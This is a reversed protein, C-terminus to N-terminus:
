LVGLQQLVLVLQWLTFVGSVISLVTTVILQRSGVMQSGGLARRVGNLIFVLTFLGSLLAIATVISSVVCRWRSMTGKTGDLQPLYLMGSPAILM